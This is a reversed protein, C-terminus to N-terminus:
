WDTAIVAFEIKRAVLGGSADREVTVTVDNWDSAGDFFRGADSAAGGLVFETATTTAVSKGLLVFEPRRYSDPVMAVTPVGAGTRDVITIPEVVYLDALAPEWRVNVAVFQGAAVDGVGTAPGAVRIRVNPLDLVLADPGVSAVRARIVGSRGASEVCTEISSAAFATLVSAVNATTAGVAPRSANALAHQTIRVFEDAAVVTGCNAYTTTAATRIRQGSAIMGDPLLSEVDGDFHARPAITGPSGDITAALVTSRGPGVAGGVRVGSGVAIRALTTPTPCSAGTPTTRLATLPQVTLETGSVRLTHRATDVAEVTGEIQLAGSGFPRGYEGFWTRVRFFGTLNPLPQAATVTTVFADLALNQDTCAWDAGAVVGNDPAPRVNRGEVDFDNASRFGTIPGFIHAPGNETGRLQPSDYEFTSALLTGAVGQTGRVIVRQGASPGTSPFGAPTASSYDITLGGVSARRAPADLTALVGVVQRPATPAARDVRTAAITGDTTRYGSAEVVDGVILTTLADISGARESQLVRTGPDIAVAQGFVTLRGHAADISEVPGRVMRNITLQHCRLPETAGFSQLLTAVDGARVDSWSANRGDISYTTAATLCSQSAYGIEYPTSASLTANITVLNSTLIDTALLRGDALLVGRVTVFRDLKLGGFGAPDQSNFKTSADTTIRYGDVDFDTTSAFRTVNGQLHGNDGAQLPLRRDVLSVRTATLEGSAALSTGEVRVFDGDVPLRTGFGALQASSWDVVLTGVTLRRRSADVATTSGTAALAQGASRRAISTAAWAGRSDQFGSVQVEDGVLVGELSAPSLGFGFRTSGDVRVPQGLVVLTATARDLSQVRGVLPAAFSVTEAAATKGGSNLTGVVTVVEGLALDSQAVVRGDVEIRAKDTAYEVGNVFISGFASIAGRSIVRGTGEIGTPQTTPTTTTLPTAATQTGAGGGGGGGCAALGVLMAGLAGIIRSKRFM